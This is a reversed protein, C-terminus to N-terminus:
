HEHEEKGRPMIFGYKAMRKIDAYSCVRHKFPQHNQIQDISTVLIIKFLTLWNNVKEGSSDLIGVM